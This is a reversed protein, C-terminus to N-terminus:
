SSEEAARSPTSEAVVEAGSPPPERQLKQIWLVLRWRDEPLIQSAYSPMRGTGHTIVHYLHGAPLDRTGTATYSPPPPFKKAVPGDGQGTVGHCPQCFTRYLTEARVMAEPTAAIPNRLERGARAAEELGPAYFFPEGGRPVTGPAPARLTMNRPELPNPAFSDYPVSHVMNPMYEWGPSAPEGGCGSLGLLASLGLGVLLLASSPQVAAGEERAGQTPKRRVRPGIDEGGAAALRRRLGEVDLGPAGGNFVLAFRDDTVGPLLGPPSTWRPILRSLGLFAGATALGGLLVTLEFTIPIFALWSSAPKGGVNMPWDIVNTYFQLGLALLTGCAGAALTVWPLRSRDRGLVADAEHLPYPGYIEEVEIGTRTLEGAAELVSEGDPFFAVWSDDDRIPSRMAKRAEDVM